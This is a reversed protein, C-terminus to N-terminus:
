KILFVQSPLNGPLTTPYSIKLFYPPDIMTVPSIIKFHPTSVGKSHICIYIYIYIYIISYVYRLM